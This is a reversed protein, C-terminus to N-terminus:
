EEVGKLKDLGEIDMNKTLKSIEKLSIDGTISLLFFKNDRGGVYMVLEKVRGATNSKKGFFYVKQGEEVLELLEEFGERKLIQFVKLSLSKAEALSLDKGALMKLGTLRGMAASVDEEDEDIDAFLSFMSSSISISTFGDQGMYQDFHKSIIDQQAFLTIMNGLLLSILMYKKM